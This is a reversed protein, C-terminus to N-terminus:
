DNLYRIGESKKPSPLYEPLDLQDDVLVELYVNALKSYQLLVTLPPERDGSEYNHITGRYLTISQTRLREAMEDLTMNLGSRIRKLKAPLNEPKVRKTAGM